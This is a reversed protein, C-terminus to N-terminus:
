DGSGDLYPGLRSRDRPLDTQQDKPKEPEPATDRTPSTNKPTPNLDPIDVGPIPDLVPDEIDIDDPDLHPVEPWDFDDPDVDPAFPDKWDHRSRPSAPIGNGGKHPGPDWGPDPVGDEWPYTKDPPTYWPRLDSPVWDIVEKASEATKPDITGTLEGLTISAKATDKMAEIQAAAMETAVDGCGKDGFGMKRLKDRNPPEMLEWWTLKKTRAWSRKASKWEKKLRGWIGELPNWSTLGMPDALNVPDNGAFALGNGLNLDDWWSGLPDRQLFRGLQPDYMRHRMHYLGTEPDLRGGQFQIENGTPL